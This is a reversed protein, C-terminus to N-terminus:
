RMLEARLRTAPEFSDDLAIAEDCCRRALELDGQARCLLALNFVLAPDRPRVSVALEQTRRAESVRGTNRQISALLNLAWPDNPSIALVDHCCAEAALHDGHQSWEAASRVMPEVQEILADRQATWKAYVLDRYREALKTYEEETGGEWAAAASRQAGEHPVFQFSAHRSLQLLMDWDDGLLLTEDFRCGQAVLSRRFLAAPLHIFNEAYLQALAFPQGQRRMTGDALTVRTWSYVVGADPAAAHAAILAGLHGPVYVDSDELVGIWDGAGAALARNIAAAHGIPAEVPLLRLPFTGCREPLARHGPTTASVIVNISPYSQAAISALAADLSARDRSVVIVDITPANLPFFVNDVV